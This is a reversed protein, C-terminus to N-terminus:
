VRTATLVTRSMLLGSSRSPTLRVFRVRGAQSLGRPAAGPDLARPDGVDKAGTPRRPALGVFAMDAEALHLDHRRDLTAPGGREASVDLAALVAGMRADGVIGAAVAVARLTLSRRRPLPEFVALRLKQRNGVIVDDESKRGRDAGDREVVFGGDVVEQEPGGRLRQGRDGGVGFMQAGADAEGGNEVGPTRRQGMVRMDVDDNGAAAQRGVPRAPDGALGSEEQGHAHERAEEAAQEEVAERGQLLGVAEDEEAVERREGVLAGEVGRERRRTAALPDDEGFSGEGSRPGDEGIEGAVPDGDRIRTQDPEVLRADGEFPLVVADFAAVPEPGDREVGGLEDATEEQVDQGAAEVADAM